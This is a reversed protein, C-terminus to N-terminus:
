HLCDGGLSERDVLLTRAGLRAAMSTATIGGSGGGVVILDYHKAALNNRVTEAM